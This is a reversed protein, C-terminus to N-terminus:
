TEQETIKDIPAKRIGSPHVCHSIECEGDYSWIESIVTRWKGEVEALVVIKDKGEKRLWIGTVSIAANVSEVKNLNAAVAAVETTWEGGYGDLWRVEGSEFRKVIVKPLM